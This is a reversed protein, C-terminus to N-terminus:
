QGPADIQDFLFQGGGEAAGQGQDAHGDGDAHAARPKEIQQMPNRPDLAQLGLSVLGRFSQDILFEFPQNPQGIGDFDIGM